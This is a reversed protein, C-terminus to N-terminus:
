HTIRYIVGTEFDSVLLSHDDLVLLHQPRALGTLFPTVDGAIAKDGTITVPVRVVAPQAAGPQTSGWLAVLLTDPEWPSPVVSTPTSRPSAAPAYRSPQGQAGCAALLLAAGVLWQRHRLNSRIGTAKVGSAGESQAAAHSREPHSHSAYVM